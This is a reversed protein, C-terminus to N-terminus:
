IEKNTTHMASSSCCFYNNIHTFSAPRKQGSTGAGSAQGRADPPPLLMDMNFNTPQEGFCCLRPCVSNQQHEQTHQTYVAAQDMDLNTPVAGGVAETTGEMASQNAWTKQQIQQKVNQNHQAFINNSSSAGDIPQIIVSGKTGTRTGTQRFKRAQPSPTRSIKNHGVYGLMQNNESATAM